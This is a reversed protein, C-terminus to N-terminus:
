EIFYIRSSTQKFLFNQLILVYFISANSGIFSATAIIQNLLLLDKEVTGTFLKLLDYKSVVRSLFYLITLHRIGLELAMKIVEAFPLITCQLTTLILM